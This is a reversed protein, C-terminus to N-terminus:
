VTLDSAQTVHTDWQFQVGLQSARAALIQHLRTRRIALDTGSQFSSAVTTGGGLFRIGRLPMGDRESVEVGLLRLAGIGAPLVGEGRTKDLPPDAAGVFTVNFGRLRGAIAAALGAPGGGIGVVDKNSGSAGTSPISVTNTQVTM